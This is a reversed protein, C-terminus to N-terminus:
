LAVWESYYYDAVFSNMLPRNIVEFYIEVDQKGHLTEGPVMEFLTVPVLNFLRGSNYTVHSYPYKYRRM